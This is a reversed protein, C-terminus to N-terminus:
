ATLSSEAWREIASSANPAAWSFLVYHTWTGDQVVDVSCAAEDCTRWAAADEALGDLELRDRRDILGDGLRASVVWGSDPMSSYSAGTRSFPQEAPGFSCAAAGLRNLAYYTPEAGVDSGLSWPDVLAVATDANVRDATCTSPKWSAADHETQVGAVPAAAVTEEVHDLLAQFAPQVQEPTADATTQLRTLSLDIWANGALARGNCSVRAADSAGCYVSAPDTSPDVHETADAHEPAADPLVSLGVGEYMPDGQGGPSVDDLLSVGNTSWCDTGGSTTATTWAGLVHDQTTMPDLVTTGPVARTVLDSPLLQACTPVGDSEPSPGFDVGSATETPTASPAASRSPAPTPGASSATSCSAVTVIATTALAVAVVGRTFIRM